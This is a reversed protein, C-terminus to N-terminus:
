RVRCDRSAHYPALMRGIVGKAAKDMPHVPAHCPTALCVPRRTVVGRLVGLTLAGILSAKCSM